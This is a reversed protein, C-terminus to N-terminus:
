LTYELAITSYTNASYEHDGYIGMIKNFGQKFWFNLAAWNKLYVGLCIRKAGKAKAEKVINNFCEKGYGTKRSNKDIVMIGIWLTHENPYGMYYNYFGVEKNLQMDVVTKMSFNEKCATKVPPLDGETLCKYIYNPKFGEGGMLEQTTWSNAIKSLVDNDKLESDRFTLIQKDKM